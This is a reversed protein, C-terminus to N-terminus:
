GKIAGIMVGKTFHKQLFPYLAVIPFVTVVIFASRVSEPVSYTEQGMSLMQELNTANELVLRLIMQVPYLEQKNLYLLAPFFSNWHYVAHFIIFTAIIPKCLPLVIQLLIRFDRAGDVLASERLEEGIQELFTRFIIVYWASLAGPLLIAWVSNILHLNQILLFTPVLGGNFVMTILIFFMITKRGYFTKIALPYSTLSVLALMIATGACVYFTSMIFGQALKDNQLVIKYADLAPEIPFFTVRGAMVASPSSLSISIVYLFPYLMALTVWTLLLTNIWQLMRDSLSTPIRMRMRM